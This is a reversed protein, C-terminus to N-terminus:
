GGCTATRSTVNEVYSPDGSSPREDTPVRKWVRGDQNLKPLDADPVTELFEVDPEFEHLHLGYLYGAFGNIGRIGDELLQNPSDAGLLGSTTFSPAPIGPIPRLGAEKRIPNITDKIYDPYTSGKGRLSAPYRRAPSLKDRFNAIGETLNARWDFFVERCDNFPNSCRNTLTIQFIGIGDDPAITVPGIGGNASASYQRQQNEQCAVRKLADAADTASIGRVGGNVGADIASQIDSRLPNTGEVRLGDETEGKVEQGDVSARATLKLRGGRISSKKVLELLYPGEGTTTTDQVIDDDWKVERAPSREDVALSGHWTFTTTPTPDPTAGVFKATARIQPMTPSADVVYRQDPPEPDLTIEVSPGFTVEWHFKADTRDYQTASGWGTVCCCNEQARLLFSAEDGSITVQDTVDVPSQVSGLGGCVGTANTVQTSGVYGIDDAQGAVITLKLSTIPQAFKRVIMREAFSGIGGARVSYTHTTYDDIPGPLGTSDIIEPTTQARLGPGPVFLAWLGFIVAAIWMGAGRFSRVRAPM